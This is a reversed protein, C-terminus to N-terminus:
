HKKLIKTLKQHNGTPKEPKQDIETRNNNKRMHKQNKTPKPNEYKKRTGAAKFKKIEYPESTTSGKQDNSWYKSKIATNNNAVPIAKWTGATCTTRPKNPM